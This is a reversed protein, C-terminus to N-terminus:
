RAGAKAMDPRRGHPMELLAEVALSTVRVGEDSLQM